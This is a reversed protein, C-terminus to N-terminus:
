AGVGTTMANWLDEAHRRAQLFRAHGAEYLPRVDTQPHFSDESASVSAYASRLDPVEGTRVRGHFLAGRAGLEEGRPRFVRHGTVDAIMQCWFSSRAGGGCVRIESSGRMGAAALCDRVVYSLGEYVSRAMHTSNHTLSLLAWSGRAHPHLFPSREGAPSLYPLFLLGDAGAPAKTAYSELDEISALNLASTAWSLAECGTLTPMAHLFHGPEPLAITTGSGQMAFHDSLVEACITTGLIVCAQGAEISGAGHATSVIDYPAMVVSTGAAVGLLDAVQPLLGAMPSGNDHLPPLLHSFDTVGYMSLLEDSYQRRRVDCFPNSADSMDAALVNTLRLFLWGNCTLSATAARLTEPSHQALWRWISNPLGSYSTCGSISAASQLLGASLWEKVIATARGDNWLLARGVPRGTGDVPWVGDGQATTAIAHIPVGSQRVARISTDLVAQWVEEMDQESFGKQPRLVAVSARALAFERGEDSFVVSKIVSTGADVCLWAM